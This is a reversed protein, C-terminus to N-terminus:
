KADWLYKTVDNVVTTAQGNNFNFTTGAALSGPSMKKAHGDAFNVTMGDAARLSGGGTFAGPVRKNALMTAIYSGTGWSAQYFCIGETTWLVGDCVPMNVMHASVITGAGYWYGANLEGGTNEASAFKSAFAITEAPAALSTLNRSTKVYGASTSMTPSMTTANIGYHPWYQRRLAEPWGAVPANASTLPDTLLDNNKMYPQMQRGWGSHESGAFGFWVPDTGTTWAVDLVGNDDYDGAYIQSATAIQKSNSLSASAKAAQKAQAFVPFLIAALIAIIAIVVLLEILTFARLRRM